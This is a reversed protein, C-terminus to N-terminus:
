NAKVTSWFLSNLVEVNSLLTKPDAWITETYIARLNPCRPIVYSLVEVTFPNLPATYDDVWTRLRSDGVMGGSCNIEVVRDLPLDDIGDVPDRGAMLNYSFLHGVDLNLYTDAEECYRRLFTTLEM